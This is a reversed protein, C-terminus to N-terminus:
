SFHNLHVPALHSVYFIANLIAWAADSLESPYPKRQPNAIEPLRSMDPLAAVAELRFASGTRGGLDKSKRSLDARVRARLNKAVLNQNSM